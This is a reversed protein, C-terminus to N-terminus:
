YFNNVLFGFDFVFNTLLTVVMNPFPDAVEILPGTEMAVILWGIPIEIWGM